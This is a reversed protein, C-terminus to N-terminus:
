LTRKGHIWLFSSTEKWSKFLSSQTFWEATGKHRAHDATNFNIFPDPPSLWKELDQRLQNGTFVQTWVDSSLTVLLDRVSTMAQM